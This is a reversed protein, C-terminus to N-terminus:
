ETKVIGLRLVPCCCIVLRHNECQGLPKSTTCRSFFLNSFVRELVLFSLCDVLVRDHGHKVIKELHWQRVRRKLALGHRRWRGHLCSCVCVCKCACSIHQRCLSGLIQKHALRQTAFVGKDNFVIAILFGQVIVLNDLSQGSFSVLLELRKM